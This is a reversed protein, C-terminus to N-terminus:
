PMDRSGYSMGTAQGGNVDLRAMAGRAADEIDGGGQAAGLRRRKARQRVDSVLAAGIILVLIGISGILFWM